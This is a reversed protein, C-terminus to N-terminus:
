EDEGERGEETRVEGRRQELRTSKGALIADVRGSQM